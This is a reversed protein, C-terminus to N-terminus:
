SEKPPLPDYEAEVADQADQRQSTRYEPLRAKATLDALAQATADAGGSLTLKVSRKIGPDPRGYARDQAIQILRAQESAKLRHFRKSKLLENLRQTALTGNEQILTWDHDPIRENDSQGTFEVVQSTPAEQEAGSVEQKRKRFGSM